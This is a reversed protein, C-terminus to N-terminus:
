LVRVSVQQHSSVMGVYEYNIGYQEYFEKWALFEHKEFGPYNFYEDFCIITGARLYPHCNELIARTGSYLDCDIHVFAIEAGNDKIFRPLTDEFPGVILHCNPPVEPPITQRFAGKEFGTRWTEPLGSFADFGYVTSNPRAKSIHRITRGSAVGFELVLGDAPALELAFTLHVLDSDFNRAKLMKTQYYRASALAADIKAFHLVDFSDARSRFVSYEIFRVLDNADM